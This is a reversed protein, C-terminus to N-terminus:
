ANGYVVGSLRDQIKYMLLMALSLRLYVVHLLSKDKLQSGGLGEGQRDAVSAMCSCCFVIDDM